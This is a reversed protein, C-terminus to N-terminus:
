ESTSFCVHPRQQAVSGKTTYSVNKTGDEASGVLYQRALMLWNLRLTFLMSTTPTLPQVLSGLTSTAAGRALCAMHVADADVDLSPLPMTM